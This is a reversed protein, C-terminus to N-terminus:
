LGGFFISLGALALFHSLGLATALSLLSQGYFHGIQGFALFAAVYAVYIFLIVYTHFPVYVVQEGSRVSFSSLFDSQLEAM